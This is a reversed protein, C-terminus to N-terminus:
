WNRKRSRCSVLRKQIQISREKATTFITACSDKDKWGKSCFDSRNDEPLGTDFRRWNMESRYAEHSVTGDVYGVFGRFIISINWILIIQFVAHIRAILSYDPVSLMFYGNNRLLSAVNAIGKRPILLHETM